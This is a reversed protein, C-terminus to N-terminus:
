AADLDFLSQQRPGSPIEPAPLHDVPNEVVEAAVVRSKNPAPLRKRGAAQRRELWYALRAKGYEVYQREREVGVIEDWGGSLLAGIM